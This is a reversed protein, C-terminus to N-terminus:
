IRKADPTSNLNSVFSSKIENMKDLACAKNYASVPIKSAKKKNAM